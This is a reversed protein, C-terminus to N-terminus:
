VTVTGSRESGSNMAGNMSGRKRTWRLSSGRSKTQLTVRMLTRQSAVIACQLSHCLTSVELPNM